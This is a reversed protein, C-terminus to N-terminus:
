SIKPCILMWQLFSFVRERVATSYLNNSILHLFELEVKKKWKPSLTRLKRGDNWLRRASTLFPIKKRSPFTSWNIEQSGEVQVFDICLASSGRSTILLFWLSPKPAVSYLNNRKQPEWCLPLGIHSDWFGCRSPWSCGGCGTLSWLFPNEGVWPLGEGKPAFVQQKLWFEIFDEKALKSLESCEGFNILKRAPVYGRAQQDM